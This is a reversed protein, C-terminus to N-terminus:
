QKRRRFKDRIFMIIRHINLCKKDGDWYITAMLDKAFNNLAMDRENDCQEMFKCQELIKGLVFQGDDTMFLRKFVNLENSSMDDTLGAFKDYFDAM